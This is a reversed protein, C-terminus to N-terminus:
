FFPILLNGNEDKIKETRDILLQFDVISDKIDNNDRFCNIMETLTSGKGGNKICTNVSKIKWDYPDYGCYKEIDKKLEYLPTNPTADWIVILWMIANYLQKATANWSNRKKSGSTTSTSYTTVSKIPNFLPLGSHNILKLFDRAAGMGCQIVEKKEDSKRIATFVYYEDEITAGADSRKTQNALLKIHAVPEVHYSTVINERLETGRCNM